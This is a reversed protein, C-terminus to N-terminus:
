ETQKLVYSQKTDFKGNSQLNQALEKHGTAGISTTITFIQFFM